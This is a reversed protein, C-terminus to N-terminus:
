SNRTLYDILDIKTILDVVNGNDMIVTTKGDSFYQTLDALQASESAIHLSEKHALTEVLISEPLNGDLLTDLIHSESVLGLFAGGSMVPLQSISYKRMREIVCAINEGAEAIQMHAPRGDSARKKLLDLVSGSIGDREIFGADKLWEDDLFKSYYRSSSDPLITLINPKKGQGKKQSKMYKLAGAVASGSSGGILLGEERILRRAMIFSEQDSVQIIDDMVSLDMTDPMFDEGIGEVFYTQPTIQQGTHFLDYFISGKPDVGIVKISPKKEKLYKSLGGVTGGTGISCVLIDLDKGCQQWIEPGTYLYHTEPNNLNYYQQAYFSNPTEKALREAVKYYSREDEADVNTPCIVVKAGTSRLAARKEESQKDAMVFICKYGKVAACMALGMGTNGSTAEIITGGPKLSGDKEAQNIIHSAIRDKISGGPNMFECKVYFNAEVDRSVSNLRVIPTNGIAQTIDSYAFSNTEVTKREMELTITLLDPKM